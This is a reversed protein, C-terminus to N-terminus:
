FDLPEFNSSGPDSHNSSQQRDNAQGPVLRIKRPAAGWTAVCSIVFFVMALILAILYDHTREFIWGGIWPGITGGLSFCFWIFGLATGVKPGQFIDTVAAIIAPTSMGLGFGTAIAYYYLMWPQSTDKMAALVLIGSVGIVTGITTTPERGIRDSILGAASGLCFLIGFLAFVSSVYIESYGLDTAYAVHHTVMIHETMGWMSFVALCLFWFRGTRIAKPLTWSIAVWAQNAIYSAGEESAASTERDELDGDPHLGRERPHYRILLILVPLLLVVVIVAEVVFTRRWGFTSVLYGIAPYFVFGGGAGFFLLSFALGRKREFWNRIITTFPVTGILCLGAGSLVGFTLYFHWPRSAGGSLALGLALLLTGFVMTKRPGIKDILGGAVPAIFGYMMIHVSLM